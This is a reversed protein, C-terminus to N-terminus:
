LMCFLRHDYDLFFRANLLQNILWSPFWFPFQVLTREGGDRSSQSWQCETNTAVNEHWTRTSRTILDVISVRQFIERFSCRSLFDVYLAHRVSADFVKEGDSEMTSASIQCFRARSTSLINVPSHKKKKKKFFFSSSSFNGEDSCLSLHRCTTTSIRM